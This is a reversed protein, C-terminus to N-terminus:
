GLWWTCCASGVLVCVVAALTNKHSEQNLILPDRVRRGARPVRKKMNLQWAWNLHSLKQKM